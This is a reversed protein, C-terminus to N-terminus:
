IVRFSPSTDMLEIKEGKETLLILFGYEDFGLVKGRIMKSDWETEIAKDKLFSHKEIWILEQLIQGQDMLHILYSNIEQIFQFTLRETLGELPKEDLLYCAKTKLDQPVGDGYVNLGMGIIVTYIGNHFESEILIGAIKKEGRYIDNPWKISIEGELGPFFILISKLLAASVFLSFLPLSIDYAPLQIKGSFIVREDGLSIWENGGRGKGKTQEDAVVWSGPVLQSDKIWENTSGVSALHHGLEPKLFHYSM